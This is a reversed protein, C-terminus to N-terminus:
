FGLLFPLVNPADIGWSALIHAAVIERNGKANPDGQLKKKPLNGITHITYIKLFKQSHRNM